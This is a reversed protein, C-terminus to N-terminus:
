GGWYPASQGPSLTDAAPPATIAPPAPYTVTVSDPSGSNTGQVALMRPQSTDSVIMYNAASDTGPVTLRVAAQGDYSTATRNIVASGKGWDSEFVAPNALNTLGSSAGTGSLWKGLLARVTPPPAVTDWMAANYRAYVRDGTIVLDAHQNHTLQMTGALARNGPVYTVDFVQEPIGATGGVIQREHFAPATQTDHRAQALIQAGTKGALPDGGSCGALTLAGAAVGALVAPMAAARAARTISISSLKM